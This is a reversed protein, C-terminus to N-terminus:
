GSARAAAGRRRGGGCAVRGGGCVRVKKTMSETPGAAKVSRWCGVYVAAAATAVVNFNAPVPIALPAVALLALLAHARPCPLAEDHGAPPPHAAAPRPM